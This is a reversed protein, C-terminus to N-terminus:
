ADIEDEDSFKINNIFERINEINYNDKSISYISKLNGGDIVIIAPVDLISSSNISYNNQLKEKVSKDKVDNTIDMYLIDITINSNRFEKRFEKEFNRIKQNELVSVYIITNPNETLYNNLENYNIVEMYKDLIPRNLKTDNYADYWMYLYYVLLVSALLVIGLIIYNKLPVRRLEEKM